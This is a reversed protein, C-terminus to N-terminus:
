QSMNIFVAYPFNPKNYDSQLLYVYSKSPWTPIPLFKSMLVNTSFRLCGGGCDVTVGRVSSLVQSFKNWNSKWYDEYKWTSDWYPFNDNEYTQKYLKYNYVNLDGNKIRNMDNTNPLINFQRAGNYDIYDGSVTVGVSRLSKAMDVMDFWCPKAFPPAPKTGNIQMNTKAAVDYNRPQQRLMAKSVDATQAVNAVEDQYQETSWSGESKWKSPVWNTPWKNENMPYLKGGAKGGMENYLRLTCEKPRPSYKPNCPDVNENYCAKTYKQSDSYNSSMAKEAFSNMDAGADSYSHTNWYNKETSANLGSKQIQTNLDGSCGSNKWLSQLCDGSHAGTLAKPSMCPYDQQFKACQGPPVLGPKFTAEPQVLDKNVANKCKKWDDDYKPWRVKKAVPVIKSNMKEQWYCRTRKPINPMTHRCHAHHMFWPSWGGHQATKKSGSPCKPDEWIWYDKTYSYTSGGAAGKPATCRSQTANAGGQCWMDQQGGLPHCTGTKWRYITNETVDKSEGMVLAQNSTSCWGCISAKGTTGGCDKVAKCTKQDQIKKCFYESDKGPAAWGNKPCVDVAPGKADGYQFKNTYWCYGCNGDALDKCDTLTRCRKIKEAIESDSKQSAVNKKVLKKDFDFGEKKTKLKLWNTADDLNGWKRYNWYEDQKKLYGKENVKIGRTNLKRNSNMWGSLRGNNGFLSPQYSNSCTGRCGQKCSYYSADQDPYVRKALAKQSQTLTAGDSAAFWRPNGNGGDTCWNYYDNNPDGKMNINSLGEKNKIYLGIVIMSIVILGLFLLKM